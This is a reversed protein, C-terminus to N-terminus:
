TIVEPYFDANSKTVSSIITNPGFMLNRKSCFKHDFNHDLKHSYMSFPIRRVIPGVLVHPGCDEDMIISPTLALIYVYICM